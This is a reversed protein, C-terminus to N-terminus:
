KPSAVLVTVPNLPQFRTLEGVAVSRSIQLQLLNYNWHHEKFWTLGLHVHEITALAIAIVGDKRLRTQCFDLISILNGGSGGIFIRDSQPLDVLIDPAQGYVPIINTLQLRQCNQEILSIGMATKEIAYIQSTPSLRAIEVSVSGTGAGIDWVIQGPQLALEGLILLRIEKKTMLGPRDSFRCFVEDPIGLLPLKEPVVPTDQRILIVVNLTSFEPFTQEIFSWVQDADIQTMREQTDGLNECIWLDYRNPSGVKLHRAIARPHHRQDTLLAIKSVGRQLALTLEDLNRGHVSILQADQWPIKIKSFALQVSSLHPHFELLESSFETLLLRGLGFFLPDGSVIIAIAQNQRLAERLQPIIARFDTLLLKNGKHEPFYSLHRQSGVILEAKTVLERTKETLGRIGDLGIGVVDIAM